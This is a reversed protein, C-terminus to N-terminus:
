RRRKMRVCEGSLFFMYGTQFNPGTVTVQTQNHNMLVRWVDPRKREEKKNPGQIVCVLDCLRKREDQM